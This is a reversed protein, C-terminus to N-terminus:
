RQCPISDVPTWAPNGGDESKASKAMRRNLVQGGALNRTGAFVFPILLALFGLQAVVFRCLNLRCWQQRLHEWEAPPHQASWHIVQNNLPFHGRLTIWGGALFFGFAAMTWYRMARCPSRLWLLRVLFTALGMVMLPLATHTFTPIIGQMITIYTSADLHNLAPVLGLQVGFSLGALSGVAILNILCPLKAPLAAWPIKADNKM